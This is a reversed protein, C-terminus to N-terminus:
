YFENYKEKVIIAILYQTLKSISVEKHSIYHNINSLRVIKEIIQENNHMLQNQILVKIQDSNM